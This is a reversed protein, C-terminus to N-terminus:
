RRPIDRSVTSRDELTIIVRYNTNGDALSSNDCVYLYLDTPGSITFSVSGDSRNLIRGNRDAVGILWSNSGPITDWLSYIGDTNQITIGTIRQQIGSLTIPFVWDNAGDPGPTKSAGVLDANNTQFPSRYGSVGSGGGGGGGGTGGGGSPTTATTNVVPDITVTRGDLFTITIIYNTIGEALSGNEAVYLGLETTGGVDFRVSGDNNNLIRGSSRVAVLWLGNGPYTDWISRSGNTNNISIGIVTGSGILTVPFAWDAAGDAALVENQGVFDLGTSVAGKPPPGPTAGGGGGTGGQITITGNAIAGDICRRTFDKCSSVDAINLMNINL